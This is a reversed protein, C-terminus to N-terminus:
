DLKTTVIRLVGNDDFIAYLNGSNDVTFTMIDYPLKYAKLLNGDYDFSLIKNIERGETEPMKSCSGIFGLYFRDNTTVVGRGYIDYFPSQLVRFGYEFDQRKIESDVEIPSSIVAKRTMTAPDFLEVIGWSMNAVILNKGDPSMGLMAQAVSNNINPDSFPFVRCTDSEGTTLNTKLFRTSDPLSPMTIVCDDDIPISTLVNYDVKGIVNFARNGLSDRVFKGVKGGLNDTVYVTDRLLTINEAHLMENPGEGKRIYSEMAGDKLSLFKIQTEDRYTLIVLTDDSAVLMRMPRGMPVTDINAVDVLRVSDLPVEDISAFSIDNVAETQQQRGNGCACMSAALVLGAFARILTRGMNRKTSTRSM